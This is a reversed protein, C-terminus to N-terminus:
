PSPVGTRPESRKEPIACTATAQEYFAEVDAAEPLTFDLACQQEDSLVVTYRGLSVGNQSLFIAGDALVSTAYQGNQDLVTLGKSLPSGDLARAILLVRRVTVVEFGIHQVSARAAEVQQFGNAIDVNRPLTSTDVELRSVRYAPLDPVVAQGLADTWVPGQPTDLKVGAVDGVTVIGFTDEIPYPSFTIGSSHVAVGGSLTADYSSGDGSDRQSYGFGVQTYRPLLNLRGGVDYKQEEDREATVSYYATDSLTDSYQGGARTGSRDDNRAYTRLRASQGIPISVSLYIANGIADDGTSETEHEMSLSVSTREFMRSWAVGARSNPDGGYSTSRTYFASFVGLNGHAYNLSATYSGKDRFADEDSDENIFTTDSLTRFNETRETATLNVSLMESLRSNLRVEMQMGSVGEDQADSVIQQLAVTTDQTLVHDFAWGASFYEEGAIGGVTLRSVPNAWPDFTVAAFSPTKSESDGLERVKGVSVSYGASADLSAGKLTAAPVTFRREDGTDEHVQVDLDLNSSLLPLDTLTFPGPPVLTSYILAGNQRVEVRASSHAIGEVRAGSGNQIGLSREPQMQVGTFATGAFLPSGMNLEGMQLEANYRELTTAAYAYLHEQNTQGDIDTYVQRSRLAWGEVNLGLETGLSRYDSSTENFEQKNVLVDYNFLGAAGGGVAHRTESEDPKVSELPVILSAQAKDPRLQVEGRPFLQGFPPCVEDTNQTSQETILGGHRLLDSTVCLQGKADFKAKIQGKSRGNILLEVIHGGEAFRPADRFYEAVKPDINRHRLTEIDFEAQRDLSDAVVLPSCFISPM